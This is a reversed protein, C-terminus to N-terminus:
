PDNGALLPSAVCRTQPTLAPSARGVIKRKNRLAWVYPSSEVAPSNEVDTPSNEMDAPSNEM